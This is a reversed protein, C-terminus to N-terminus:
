YVLAFTKEFTKGKTWSPRAGPVIRLVKSVLVSKGPRGCATQLAALDLDGQLLAVVSQSQDVIGYSRM